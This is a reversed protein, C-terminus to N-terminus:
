KEKRRLYNISNYFHCSKAAYVYLYSKASAAFISFRNVIIINTHLNNFVITLNYNNCVFQILFHKFTFCVM